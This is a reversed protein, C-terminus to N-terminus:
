KTPEIYDDKFIKFPECKYIAMGGSAAEMRAVAKGCESLKDFPNGQAAQVVWAPINDGSVPHLFNALMMLLWVTQM